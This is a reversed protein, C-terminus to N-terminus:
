DKENVFNDTLVRDRKVSDRRRLKSQGRRGNYEKTLREVLFAEIYGNM